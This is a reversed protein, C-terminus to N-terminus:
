QLLSSPFPHTSPIPLTRGQRDRLSRIELTKRDLIRFTTKKEGDFIFFEEPARPGNFRGTLAFPKKDPSFISRGDFLEFPEYGLLHDFVSPFLDVHSVVGSERDLGEARANDGFKLYIPPETQMASLHSCHFLQGEEFFEEGHDGTLLIVSEDYLGKEKLASVFQGFLSDVYHIANRYRNKIKEINSVSNSVRLHTKEECIPSFYLPYEAPWSYNFHTSEIFILFVNGTRGSKTGIKKHLENMALQDSEWAEQPFYHPFVHYSDALYHNKKFKLKSLQYYRLQAASCVHIQYGMKKLIQLPLSGAKRKKMAEKWYLSHKSHFISYWSKHTANAGSFSKGFRINEKSFAAMYPATQPTIFDDRLSEMVFLYINPKKEVHLAAKHVMKLEEKEPRLGRMPSKLHLLTKNGTLLTTKWPLVKEYEQYDEQSLLPSFTLDLAILGIPLCCMVKFVEKQSVKLKPSVKSTLFYLIMAILPILFLAFSLLFIWTGIGIGTLHLIEIFNEVSESFVWKLGGYVSMDMYRILIFDVYHIMFFLFTMSLFAFYLAKSLYTKIVNGIFCLVVVELLSEILAYCLFYLSAFRDHHGFSIMHYLNLCVLGVLLLGFFLPNIRLAQQWFSKSTEGEEM